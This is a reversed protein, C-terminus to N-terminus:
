PTSALRPPRAAAFGGLRGDQKYSSELCGRSPAHGRFSLPRGPSLRADPSSGVADSSADTDLESVIREDGSLVRTQQRRCIPMPRAGQRGSLSVDDGNM